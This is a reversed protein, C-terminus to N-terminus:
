TSVTVESEQLVEAPCWEHPEKHIRPVLVTSVRELDVISPLQEAIFSYFDDSTRFIAQISLDAEGAATAIYVVEPIEMLRHMVEPAKPQSVRCFIDVTLQYDFARPHIVIEPSIVKTEILKHIRNRVTRPTVSVKKAIEESSVRPDKKLFAIIQLNLRDLKM